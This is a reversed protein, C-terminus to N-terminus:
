NLPLPTLTLPPNLQVSVALLRADDRHGCLHHILAALHLGVRDAFAVTDDFSNAESFTISPGLECVSARPSELSTLLPPRISTLDPRPKTSVEEERMLTAPPLCRPFPPWTSIEEVSNGLIRECISPWTLPPVVPPRSSISRVSMMREVLPDSRAPEPVTLAFPGGVVAISRPSQM